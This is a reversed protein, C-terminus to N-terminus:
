ANRSYSVFRYGDIVAARAQIATTKRGQQTNHDVLMSKILRGDKAWVELIIESLKYHEHARAIALDERLFRTGADPFRRDGESAPLGDKYVRYEGAHEEVTYGAPLDM